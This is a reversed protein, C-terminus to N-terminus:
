TSHILISIETSVGKGEGDMDLKKWVQPFLSQYNYSDLLLRQNPPHSLAFQPEQTCLVDEDGPAISRVLDISILSSSLLVLPIAPIMKFASHGRLEESEGRARACANLRAKAM